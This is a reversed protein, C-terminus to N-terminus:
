TTSDLERLDEPSVALSNVPKEEEKMPVNNIIRNICRMFTAPMSTLGQPCVNWEYFGANMVTFATKHRDEPHLPIQYYGPALDLVTFYTSGGLQDFIDQINLLPYNDSITVENLKRYDLVIRYRPNGHSDDKKKFVLTSLKEIAKRESPKLHDLRLLTKVRECRPIEDAEPSILMVSRYAGEIRELFPTSSIVCLGRIEHNQESYPDQCGNLLESSPSDPKFKYVQELNKDRFSVSKRPTITTPFNMTPVTRKKPPLRGTLHAAIPHMVDTLTFRGCAEDQSRTESNKKVHTDEELKELICSKSDDRDEDNVQEICVHIREDNKNIYHWKFDHNNGIILAQGGKHIMIQSKYTYSRKMDQFKDEEFRHM